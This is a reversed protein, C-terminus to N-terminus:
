EKEHNNEKKKELKTVPDITWWITALGKKKSLLGYAIVNEGKSVKLSPVNPGLSLKFQCNASVVMDTVRVQDNLGSLIVGEMCINKNTLESSFEEFIGENVVYYGEKIPISNFRNSRETEQKAEVIKAEAILQEKDKQNRALMKRNWLLELAENAKGSNIAIRAQTLIQLDQKDQLGLGYGVFLVAAIIVIAWYVLFNQLKPLFSRLPALKEGLKISKVKKNKAQIGIKHKQTQILESLYDSEFPHKPFCKKVQKAFYKTLARGNLRPKKRVINKALKQIEQRIELSEYETRQREIEELKLRLLEKENVALQQQMQEVMAEHDPETEALAITGSGHYFRKPTQTCRHNAAWNTVKEHVWEYIREITLKGDPNPTCHGSLAESLFWSFVGQSKEDWEHSLEDVGCSTMTYIGESKSLNDQWNISMPAVDRGAGSHCADIILIKNRAKCRGMLEQINALPIGLTHLTSLTADGPVLYSKGDMDRGHGAFYFLVTDDKKPQALWSSLWTHINAFTPKRDDRQTDDLLLMREKDFGLDGNLLVDKLRRCDAGAYKLEGLSEHYNNIGILVAYKNM